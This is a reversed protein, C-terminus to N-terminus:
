LKEQNQAHDGRYGPQFAIRCILLLDSLEAVLIKRGETKQSVGHQLGGVDDHVLGITYGHTDVLCGM